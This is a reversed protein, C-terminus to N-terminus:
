ATRRVNHTKKPKSTIKKIGIKIVPRKTTKIKIKM